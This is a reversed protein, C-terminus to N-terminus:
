TVNILSKKCMNINYQKGYDRDYYEQYSNEDGFNQIINQRKAEENSKVKINPVSINVFAFLFLQHIRLM